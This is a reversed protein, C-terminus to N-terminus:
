LLPSFSLDRRFHRIPAAVTRGPADGNVPALDARLSTALNPPHAQDTPGAFQSTAIVERWHEELFPELTEIPGVINHVDCDVLSM